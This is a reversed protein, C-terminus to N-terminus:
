DLNCEKAIRDFAKSTERTKFIRTLSVGDASELRLATERGKRITRVMDAQTSVQILRDSIAQGVTTMIPEKDIRLKIVFKGGIPLPKPDPSMDLVGITLDGEICRVALGVGADGTLAAFTGGKGFRDETATVYWSGILRGSDEAQVSRNLACTLAAALMLTAIVVSSTKRM